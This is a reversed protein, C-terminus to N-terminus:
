DEKRSNTMSAIVAAALCRVVHTYSEPRTARTLKKHGSPPLSFEFSQLAETLEELRVDTVALYPESDPSVIWPPAVPSVVFLDQLRKVVNVIAASVFILHHLIRSSDAVIHVVVDATDRQTLVFQEVFPKRREVQEVADMYRYSRDVVDRRIKWSHRLDEEPYLFVSLDILEMGCISNIASAHLGEVFVIPSPSVKKPTDFRGIKHNYMPMEVSLGSRLATLDSSLKEFDNAEPQDPYECFHTREERDHKHYGDLDVHTTNKRGLLFTLSRLIRSKGSSSAGGVGVFFSNTAHNPM